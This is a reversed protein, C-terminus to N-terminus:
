PTVEGAEALVRAVDPGRWGPPKVVKGDERRQVKGDPGVKRMNAAHVESFVAGLPLGFTVAAGSTVYQVDALEQAMATLDPAAAPDDTVELLTGDLASADAVVRVGSARAFELVEELLLRVRLCRTEADLVTASDNVPVGMAEHFQRVAAEYNVHKLVKM